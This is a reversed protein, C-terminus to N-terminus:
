SFIDNSVREVAFKGGKAIEFFKLNKKSFLGDLKEFFGWIKFTKLCKVIETANWPLNALIRHNLFIWRWFRFNRVIANRPCIM